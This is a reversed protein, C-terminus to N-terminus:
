KAPKSPPLIPMNPRGQEATTARFKKMLFVHGSDTVAKADAFMNGQDDTSLNQPPKGPKVEMQNVLNYIERTDGKVNVSNLRDVCEQVLVWQQFYKLGTKSHKEKLETQQEKTRDGM